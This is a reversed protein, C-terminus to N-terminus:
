GNAERPERVWRHWEPQTMRRDQCRRRARAVGVGVVAVFLVIGVVPWFGWSGAALVVHELASSYREFGM